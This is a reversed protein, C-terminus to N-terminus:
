LLGHKMLFRTSLMMQTKGPPYLIDLNRAGGHAPLSAPADISLDSSVQNLAEEPVEMPETILVEM